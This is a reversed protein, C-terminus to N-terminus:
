DICAVEVDLRYCPISVSVITGYYIPSDYDRTIKGDGRLTLIGQGSRITMERDKNQRVDGTVHHLGYGRHHDPLSSVGERLSREIAQVDSSIARHKPNKQLSARIGIGCDAVAIEVVPGSSYDYQQALVYGGNSDAHYVVNSALESFIEHCPQLLSAFGVLETQFRDEMQAALNDIDFENAFRTCTVMPKAPQIEPILDEPQMGEFVGHERMAAFVGALRLYSQVNQNEPLEITVKPMDPRKMLREITALLAVTGVPKIFNVPALDLVGDGRTEFDWLFDIDRVTNIQQPTRM